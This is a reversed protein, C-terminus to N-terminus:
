ASLATVDVSPLPAQATKGRLAAPHLVDHRVRWMVGLRQWEFAVGCVAPLAGRRYRSMLYALWRCSTGTAKSVSDM